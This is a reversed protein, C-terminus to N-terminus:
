VPLAKALSVVVMAQFIIRHKEAYFAEVTVIDIVDHIAEPRLMISGLFAMESDISQPPVRLTTSRTLQPKAIITTM